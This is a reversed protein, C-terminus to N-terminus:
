EGFCVFRRSEVSEDVIRCLLHFYRNPVLILNRVSKSLCADLRCVKAAQVLSVLFSYQLMCSSKCGVLTLVVISKCILFIVSGAQVKGPNKDFM